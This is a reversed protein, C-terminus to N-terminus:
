RTGALAAPAAELHLFSLYAASDIPKSYLYGQLYQVGMAALAEAQQATEVGEAVLHSDLDRTMKVISQLVVQPKHSDGEFCPWILSKDLKVLDYSVDAMQSLNSYGTGFDDMSFSCGLERLAKMNETLIHGSEVAASETIEFNIFSAPVSWRELMEKVLPVLTSDAIQLGSLNVEIYDVGHNWLENRSAFRCVSELVSSGLEGILGCREALPIFEEPSVFGLTDTDKLRVLAEASAFCRKQTSYIPQYLVKFGDHKVAHELLTQIAANRRCNALCAGDVMHVEPEAHPLRNRYDLIVFIADVDQAFTPCPLIDIHAIARLKGASTDWSHSLRNQLSETRARIELESCSLLVALSNGRQRYVPSHFLDRMTLGIQSIWEEVTRQQVKASVVDINELVVNVVYFPSRRQLAQSAMLQFARRNFCGTASDIHERPNEFALYTYLVTLMIGLSSLLLGPQHMQLLTIILWVVTGARVGYVINTSYRSRFRLLRLNTLFLYLIVSSYVTYAMPGYSYAIKGDNFYFLPAAVVALLSIVYPICALAVHRWHLHASDHGLLVIYVYLFFIVSDLTGIFVQHCLRTVWLPTSTLHWVTYVTVIDFALNVCACSLMVTFARTSRLPLRKSLSYSTLIVLLVVGSAIQFRINTLFM